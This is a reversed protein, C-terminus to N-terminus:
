AGTTGSGLQVRAMERLEGATLGAGEALRADVALTGAIKAAAAVARRGAERRGRAMRVLGLHYQAMVFHPDLYAARRLADEAAGLRGLAQEVLGSYFHLVPDEPRAQLAERCALEAGRFDGVDARRRVEALLAEASASPPEPTPLVLPAPAATPAPRPAPILSLPQLVLEAPTPVPAPSWPAPSPTSEETVAAGPPRYAVTGPLAVAAAFRAFEPNPEAHGVLLWGEAKLRGVLAACVEVMKQPHFYILVNRCLILDFDVLELPPSPGLLDLLNGRQFRVMSRYPAKLQWLSGSETFWAKRQEADLSRIAWRSFQAERAASLFDDNIDTGLINIRWQSLAEGLMEHLLIAVSYAEAGTACGASWIRIRRTAACRELIDPLITKRLAEFQEPYRFFYTEGITLEAELAAWEREGRERDALRELYAELSAGRLRKRVREWLLDDKDEYYFHGTREIVQQKLRGFAEGAPVPALPSKM